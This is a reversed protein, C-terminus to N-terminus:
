TYSRLLVGKGEIKVQGIYAPILATEGMKFPVDNISVEGECVILTEFRSRDVEYIKETNVTIKETTFYDCKAIIGNDVTGADCNASLGLNTVDIAKDIHLPRPNGQSDRRDYDYVRYTTDSNQQIEAIILGKGIAHLTGASIFFCDGKKCEVFNTYSLLSNDNIANKFEEKSLEKAFGYILGAGEEAHMVYWMETKGMECNENKFAYEDDPHVQISLNDKADIFKILLPFKDCGYVRDGLLKEKLEGVLQKITMGQYKGNEVVSEGNKHSAVEWSEATIEYPSKKGYKKNLNDGGWIYDKYVPTMKLPYMEKEGKANYM